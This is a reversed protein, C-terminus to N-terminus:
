LRPRPNLSVLGHAIAYKTLGAVSHIQLKRMIHERHTEVTRVGLGLRAAIEKNSLGEAIHMLVEQERETLQEKTNGDRPGRVIQNLALRAIEPSFYVQGESVTEIARTLEDAPCDKLVYGRAGAQLLTPLTDTLQHASLVLVRTKAKTRRLRQTAQLGSVGPMQLDMLVVDPELEMVKAFAEEGDGAEGVVQIHPQQALCASIGKRVVPHDDAVLVRIMKKM